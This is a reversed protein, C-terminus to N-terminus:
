SIKSSIQRLLLCGAEVMGLESGEAVVAQLSLSQWELNSSCCSQEHRDWRYPPCRSRTSLRAPAEGDRQGRFSSPSSSPSRPGCGRTCAPGDPVRDCQEIHLVLIHELLLGIWFTLNRLGLQPHSPSTHSEAVSYRVFWVVIFAVLLLIECGFQMQLVFVVTGSPCQFLRVLYTHYLCQM